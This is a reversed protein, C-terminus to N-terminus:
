DRATDVLNGGLWALNELEESEELDVATDEDSQGLGSLLHECNDVWVNGIAVGVELGNALEDVLATVALDVLLTDGKGVVLKDLVVQALVAKHANLIQDMLDEGHAGVELLGAVEQPWELEGVWSSAETWALELM